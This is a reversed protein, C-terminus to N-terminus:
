KQLDNIIINIWTQIFNLDRTFTKDEPEIADSEYSFVEGNRYLVLYNAYEKGCGNNSLFDKEIEAPLTDYDFSKIEWTNKMNSNNFIATSDNISTEQLPAKFESCGKLRCESCIGNFDGTLLLSKGCYICKNM